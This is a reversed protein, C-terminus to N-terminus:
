EQKVLEFGFQYGQYRSHLHLTSDTLLRITYDMPIKVGTTTISEGDRVYSGDATNGMMNTALSGDERFEFYLGDLLATEVNNRTARELRWNGNVTADANVPGDEGCASLLLVTFVFLAFKLKPM